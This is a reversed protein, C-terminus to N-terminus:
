TSVRRLHGRTLPALYGPPIKRPLYLDITQTPSSPIINSFYDQALLNRTPYQETNTEKEDHSRQGLTKSQLVNLVSVQKVQM